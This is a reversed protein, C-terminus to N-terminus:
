NASIRDLLQPNLFYTKDHHEFLKFQAKKNIALMADYVKRSNESTVNEGFEELLEDVEWRKTPKSFIAKCLSYQNSGYAIPIMKGDLELQSRQAHFYLRSPVHVEQAQRDKEAIVKKVKHKILATWIGAIIAALFASMAMGTVLYVWLTQNISHISRGVVVLAVPVQKDVLMRSDILFQEHTKTDSIIRVGVQNLEDKVYSPDIYTPPRGDNALVKNFSNVVTFALNYRINRVDVKNVDLDNDKVEVVSMLHQMSDKLQQDVDELVAEQPDYAAVIISGYTKGEQTIPQSFVRWQEGTPTTEFRINQFELLHKYDSTDLFGTIPKSREIVFGQATMIYLPFASSSNPYATYPDANYQTVDWNGGRYVLDHAVREQIVALSGGIFNLFLYRILFFSSLIILALGGFTLLYLHLFHDLHWGTRLRSLKMIPFNYSIALTM